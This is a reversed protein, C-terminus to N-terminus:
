FTVTKSKPLFIENKGNQALFPGFIAMKAWFCGNKGIEGFGNMPNQQNKGYFSVKQDKFFYRFNMPFFRFNPKKARKQGFNPWKQGFVAM